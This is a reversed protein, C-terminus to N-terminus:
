LEENEAKTDRFKGNAEILKAEYVSKVKEAEDLSDQYLLELREFNNKLSRFDEKLKSVDDEEIEIM